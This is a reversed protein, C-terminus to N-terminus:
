TGETGYETTELQTKHKRFAEARKQSRRVKTSVKKASHKHYNKSKEKAQLSRQISAPPHCHSTASLIMTAAKQPGRNWHAVATMSRAPFNRRSTLSKPCYKQLAKNFSENAQTAHGKCTQKIAEVSMVTNMINKIVLIDYSSIDQLSIEEPLHSRKFRQGDQCMFSTKDCLEHKGNFCDLIAHKLDTNHLATICSKEDNHLREFAKNMEGGIRKRLDLAFKRRTATVNLAKCKFSNTRVIKKTMTRQLHQM